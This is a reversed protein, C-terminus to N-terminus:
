ETTTSTDKEAEVKLTALVMSMDEKCIMAGLDVKM